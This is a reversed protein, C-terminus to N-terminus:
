TADPIQQRSLFCVKRKVQERQVNELEEGRAACGWSWIGNRLPLSALLGLARCKQPRAAPMSPGPRGRTAPGRSSLRSSPSAGAAGPGCLQGRAGWAKLRQQHGRLAGHLQGHHLSDTNKELKNKINSHFSESTLQGPIFVICFPSHLIGPDETEATNHSISQRPASGERPLWNRLIRRLNNRLLSAKGVFPYFLPTKTLPHPFLSGEEFLGSGKFIRCPKPQSLM